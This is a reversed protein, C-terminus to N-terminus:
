EMNELADELEAINKKLMDIATMLIENVKLQGFSEVYFIFEDDTENLKIGELSADSCAACLDCDLLKDKNVEVKGGKIELVGKPCVKIVAEPDKINSQNIDIVPKYKYWVVGPAWKMHDRGKGLQATLIAEFDQGKLLKVIPTKPYVPVIKPDKSEINSAYVMSDKKKLTMQVTCRACGKGECKCEDNLIYSKLDTTLPILGLRHAVIEDYMISNNKSIEVDEVAMTPVEELILRRLMNAIVPDAKKMIFTVNMKDKDQHLLVIEMKFEEVGEVAKKGAVMM